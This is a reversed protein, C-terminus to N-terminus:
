EDGGKRLAAAVTATYSPKPPPYLIQYAKALSEGRTM